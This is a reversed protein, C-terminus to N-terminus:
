IVGTELCDHVHLLGVPLKGEVVFLATIHRQSLVGLAEAALTDKTVTKPSASMVETVRTSKFDKEFNRRLDGDTIMGILEGDSNTIGICGFGYKSICEIAESVSITDSCLPLEERDHMLHEVKRFAAGLKGGPHFNRFDSASFGKEQLLTVALADGLALTMTTSTTPARTEACAEKAKPLLLVQDSAYALASEAGSTISILPLNFRGCYAIIDSLEPTEGSNSLALVIDDQGIMGLDGHSAEAPHVFTSPTGTSALTAAIKNGIHGSKGMGTVIVRGKANKVMELTALFASALNSNATKLEKMLLEIGAKEVELVEHAISLQDAM